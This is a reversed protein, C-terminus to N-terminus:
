IIKPNYIATLANKENQLRTNGYLVFFFLLLLIVFLDFVYLQM